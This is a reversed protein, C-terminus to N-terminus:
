KRQLRDAAAASAAAFSDNRSEHGSEHGPFWVRQHKRCPPTPPTPPLSIADLDVGTECSLEEAPIPVENRLCRLVAEGSAGVLLGKGCIGDYM